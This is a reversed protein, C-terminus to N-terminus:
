DFPYHLNQKTTLEVLTASKGGGLDFEKVEEQKPLGLVNM